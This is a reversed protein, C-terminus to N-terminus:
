KKPEAYFLVRGCEQCMRAEISGSTKFLGLWGGKAGKDTYMLGKHPSDMFGRDLVQINTLPKQCDPCDKRM